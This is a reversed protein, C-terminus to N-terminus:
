KRPDVTTIITAIRGPLAASAFTIMTALFKWKRTGMTTITTIPHVESAFMTMTALFSSRRTRDATIIVLSPIFLMNTMQLPELPLPAVIKVQIATCPGWNVVIVTTTITTTTTTIRHALIFFM